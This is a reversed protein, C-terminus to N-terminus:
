KVKGRKPVVLKLHKPRKERVPKTRGKSDMVFQDGDLTTHLTYTQIGNEAAWQEMIGPQGQARRMDSMLSMFEVLFFTIDWNHYDWLFDFVTESTEGIPKDWGLEAIKDVTYFYDKTGRRNGDYEKTIPFISTFRRPTVLSIYAMIAETIHFRREMDELTTNEGARGFYKVGYFITRELAKDDDMTDPLAAILANLYLDLKDTNKKVPRHGVQM